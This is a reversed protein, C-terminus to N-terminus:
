EAPKGEEADRSDLEKIHDRSEQVDREDEEPKPSPVEEEEAEDEASIADLIEQTSSIIYKEALLKRVAKFGKEKIRQDEEKQKQLLEQQLLEAPIM